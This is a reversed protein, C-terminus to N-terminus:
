RFLNSEVDGLLMLKTHITLSQEELGDVGDEWKDLEVDDEPKSIHNNVSVFCEWSKGEDVAYTGGEAEEELM